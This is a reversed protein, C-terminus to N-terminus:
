KGGEKNIEPIVASDVHIYQSAVLTGTLIEHLTDNENMATILMKILAANHGYVDVKLSIIDKGMVDGVEVCIKDGQKMEADRILELSDKLHSM